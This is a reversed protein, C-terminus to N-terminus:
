GNRSCESCCHNLKVKNGDKDKNRQQCIPTAWRLFRVISFIWIAAVTPLVILHPIVSETVSSRLDSNRTTWIESFRTKLIQNKEPECRNDFECGNCTTNLPVVM